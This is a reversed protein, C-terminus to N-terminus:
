KDISRKFDKMKIERKTDNKMEKTGRHWKVFTNELNGLLYHFSNFFHDYLSVLMVFLCVDCDLYIVTKSPKASNRKVSLVM